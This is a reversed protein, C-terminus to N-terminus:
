GGGPDMRSRLAPTWHDGYRAQLDPRRWDESTITGRCAASGCRCTMEFGDAGSNTGYDVTLEEGPRIPRRAALEYPGAHCLNPDCSHNAYHIVTGPPLVLHADEYITITDVYPGDPEADARALLEVLEASPVLRGGLRVVITAMALNHTAFLGKGEIASRGVEVSPHLWVDGPPATIDM